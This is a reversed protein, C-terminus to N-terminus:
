VPRGVPLPLARRSGSKRAVELREKRPEPDYCFYLGNKALHLAAARLM